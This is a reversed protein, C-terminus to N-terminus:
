AEEDLEAALAIVFAEFRALEAQTGPGDLGYPTERLNKLIKRHRTLEVEFRDGIEGDATRLRNIAKIYESPGQTAKNDENIGYLLGQAWDLAGSYALELRGHKTEISVSGDEADVEYATAFGAAMVGAMAEDLMEEYQSPLDGHAGHTAQEIGDLTEDVEQMHEDCLYGDDHGGPGHDHQVSPDSIAALLAIMQAAMATLHPVQETIPSLDETDEQSLGRLILSLGFRMNSLRMALWGAIKAAEAIPHDLEGHPAFAEADHLAHLRTGAETLTTLFEEFAEIHKTEDPAGALSPVFTGVYAEAVVDEKDFHVVNCKTVEAMALLHGVLDPYDEETPGGEAAYLDTVDLGLIKLVKVLQEPRPQFNGRM